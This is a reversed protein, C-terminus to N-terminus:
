FDHVSRSLVNVLRMLFLSTSVVLVAAPFIQPLEISFTIRLHRLFLSPDVM